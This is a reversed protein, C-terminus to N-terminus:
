FDFFGSNFFGLCSGDRLCIRSRRLLGESRTRFLDQTM